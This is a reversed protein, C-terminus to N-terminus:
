ASHPHRSSELVGRVATLLQERSFPKLLTADTGLAEAASQFPGGFAGSTVVLRPVHGSRRLSAIVELEDQNPLVLNILLLDCSEVQLRDAAESLKAATAVRYGADILCAQVFECIAPDDDVVLIRSVPSSSLIERVAAALDDASFPKSLFRNGTLSLQAQPLSDAVFGSMFLVRVGPFLGRIIGAAEPGSIGPLMVDTLVLDLVGPHQRAIEVAEEGTSAPLVDYGLGALMGAAFNRVETYDEILLITGTGADHTAASETAVGEIPQSGV